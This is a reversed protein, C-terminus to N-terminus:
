ELICRFCQLNESHNKHQLTSRYDGELPCKCGMGRGRQVDSSQGSRNPIRQDRSAISKYVPSCLDMTHYTLNM